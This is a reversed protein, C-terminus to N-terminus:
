EFLSTQTLYEKCKFGKRPSFDFFNCSKFREKKNVWSAFDKEYQTPIRKNEYDRYPQVFPDIGLEDLKTVRYLDEEPTSWYGILVYCAIKYCKVHKLMEEVKPLIDEKPNDWAIHISSGSLRMTNLAKAQEENMIRVDVGHINVPQKTTNLFEVADRWLPNAFFNNDLVKIHKGRPNLEMLEVPHIKGEKQRVLCFPCSRICGRSFFQISFEHNPYISYDPDMREIHSPLKSTVDYGTGGKVIEDANICTTVDPTFSFIKSMYVKNYTDFHNVWEVTNGQAKHFASIKMLALNPFNHGDVDILGIKM